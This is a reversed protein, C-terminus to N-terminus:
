GRMREGNPDLFYPDRVRARTTIGRAPNHVRVSDGYRARGAKLLALAIYQGLAPSWTASTIRGDGTGEFPGFSLVAGTSLPKDEEAVLGVLQQREPAQLGPRRAMVAGIFPKKTSAMRGLGLDDLTTRGDMEGGAPHGKEIRLAGLAELGYLGAGAARLARWVESADHAPVYIEFSMEGSFSVRLIRVPVEAVKTELVGLFPLASDDVADTVVRALVNRANPGALVMAAWQDTVATVQVKLDVWVTQLLYELHALVRGANATTTTMFYLDPAIRSTTGDDFVYGDDRLMVGWRAKGVPLSKWGNTYVRNLLECAEPGEIEIKGLTSVDALAADTRVSKMERVSAEDVDAGHEGYYWAREWLGSVTMVAGEGRHEADLPSRRVLHFRPGVEAGALTGLSVPTFPPRFTTTGVSPIDEELQEAMLAIALVNSTKGQDTGMGLTTYRKLHEVSEFGEAKAQAVDKVTVDNQLDVFANRGGSSQWLPKIPTRWDPLARVTANPIRRFDGAAAGVVVAGARLSGPLFAAHEASWVPKSGLQSTLHVVPSWGGSICLLDCPIAQQGRPESLISASIRHWGTARTVVTGLRLDIGAASLRAIDARAVRPRSDAVTVRAGVSALDHAVSYISDNNGCCVVNRGCLVGFRNLYTRVAGALMVGPLDNGAFAAGREHAGAAIVCKAARVIRLRRIPGEEALGFTGHDYAGFVTTRLLVTINKCAEIQAVRSDLASRERSGQPTSLVAGGLRFDREALVVRAGDRAASVAADLGSLGAGVVLVDCHDHITESPVPDEGTPPRGLGAAKRIVREYLKWAGRVPGMFTKYYFGAGLVPAALQNISQLDFSLSPWRNQSQAVLGDSLEVTTAQLNPQRSAGVGVSMLANPEEVGAAYIGRPRHYKFSRGVLSVGNALLASALTDGQFGTYSRGDFRFGLRASRNVDGKDALRIM